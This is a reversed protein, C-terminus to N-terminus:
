LSCLRRLTNSSRVTRASSAFIAGSVTEKELTSDRLMQSLKVINKISVTSDLLANM